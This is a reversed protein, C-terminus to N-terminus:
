LVNRWAHALPPARRQVAAAVRFRGHLTVCAMTRESVADELSRSSMSTSCWWASPQLAAGFRGGGREVQATVVARLKVLGENPRLGIQADDPLEKGPNHGGRFLRVGLCPVGVRSAVRAKVDTCTTGPTLPIDLAGRIGSLSVIAHAPHSGAVRAAGAATVGAPGPPTAPPWRPLTAQLGRASVDNGCWAGGSATACVVRVKAAIRETVDGDDDDGDTAWDGDGDDDGDAEVAAASRPERDGAM